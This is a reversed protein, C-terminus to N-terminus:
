EEVGALFDETWLRLFYKSPVCEYSRDEQVTWTKTDGHWYWQCLDSKGQPTNRLVLYWGDKPPYEGKQIDHFKINVCVEQM